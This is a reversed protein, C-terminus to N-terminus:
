AKVVAPVGALPSPLRWRLSSDPHDLWLSHVGGSTITLGLRDWSPRGAGTWQQYAWEVHPWLETTGAETVIGDTLHVRAWSGDATSLTTAVPARTAPDLNYTSSTGAPLRLQALFWAM